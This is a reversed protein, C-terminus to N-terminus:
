PLVRRLQAHLVALSADNWVVYDARDMKTRAPLQARLRQQIQLDSWGRQSLRDRQIGASCAVCLTSDFEPAANTEFLLPIIVVAYPHAEHRWQAVHTKWVARIRPHLIQELKKRAAEDQFIFQALVDRLLHGDPDFCSSGFAFRIEELAPEGPRVLERAILDTDAIPIGDQALLEAAASKGMGVGGTLGFLKMM